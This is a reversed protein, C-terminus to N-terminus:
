TNQKNKKKKLFYPNGAEKFSFSIKDTECLFCNVIDAINLDFLVINHGKGLNSKYAIGDLGNNKFLEAIIQTPIYDAVSDNPTVPNSFAWDIDSWVAEEKKEATPEKFYFVFNEGHLESCNVLTIDKIIKFQGVSIKSGLWPRVEAMATDKDTAVYLYPIGKPNARGENAMNPIPKMREQSLPCPEDGLHENEQVIPRWANGLQARWLNKGKPFQQYRSESTALITNLFEQVSKDFIYRCERKTKREFNRYSCWSQFKPM